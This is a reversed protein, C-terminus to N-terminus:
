GQATGGAMVMRGLIFSKQSDYCPLHKSEPLMNQEEIESSSLVLHRFHKVIFGSNHIARGPNKKWLPMQGKKTWAHCHLENSQFIVENHPIPIHLKKGEGLVPEIPELTEDDYQRQSSHPSADSM